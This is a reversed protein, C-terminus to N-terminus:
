RVGRTAPVRARHAHWGVAGLALVAGLLGPSLALDRTGFLILLTLVATYFLNYLAAEAALARLVSDMAVTRLGDSISQRLNQAHTRGAPSPKVAPSPESTRIRAISGASVLYSLADVLVATPASVLQTLLGAIGPGGVESGAMSAQIRSNARMLRDRGVLAPVYSQYSLEFLVQLTGTAFVSAYLLPLSLVHFAATMPVMGLSAARALDALIMIPRRRHRDIWAGAPLGVLLFPLWQSAGLFGMQLPTAGLTLAATLPIALFSVQTGILSVTQGVWLRGFDGNLRDGRRSGTANVDLAAPEM